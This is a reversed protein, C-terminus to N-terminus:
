HYVCESALRDCTSGDSMEAGCLEDDPEGSGDDEDSDADDEEILDDYHQLQSETPDFSEGPSVDSADRRRLDHTGRWIHQDM